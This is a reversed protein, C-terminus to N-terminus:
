IFYYIARFLRYQCAFQIMMCSTIAAIIEKGCRFLNSSQKITEYLKNEKQSPIIKLSRRLIIKKTWYNKLVLAKWPCTTKYGFARLLTPLKDAYSISWIDAIVKRPKHSYYFMIAAKFGGIWNAVYSNYSLSSKASFFHLSTCKLINYLSYKLLFQQM